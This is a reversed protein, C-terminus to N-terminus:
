FVKHSTCEVQPNSAMTADSSNNKSSDPKSIMKVSSKSDLAKSSNSEKISPYFLPYPISTNTSMM